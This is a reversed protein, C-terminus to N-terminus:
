HPSPLTNLPDTPTSSLPVSKLLASDIEIQLGKRQDEKRKRAEATAQRINFENILRPRAKEFTQTAAARSELLLIVYAAAGDIIVESCTQPKSLQLAAKAVPAPLRRQIEDPNLWGIDGGIYRTDQDDSFETALSGFGRRAPDAPLAQFRKLAEALRKHNETLRVVALHRADPVQLSPKLEEYLAKLQVDTPSLPELAVPEKEQLMAILLARQRRRFDPSEHLKLAQARQVLASETILEDLLAGRDISAANGGGRRVAAAQFEEVSITETGVVALGAPKPGEPPDCSALVLPTVLLPVIRRHRRTLAGLGLLLLLARSPEPVIITTMAFVYPAGAFSNWEAGNTNSVALWPDVTWGDAASIHSSAWYWDLLGMQQGAMSDHNVNTVGAVIWYSKGPEFVGVPATAHNFILEVATAGPTAAVTASAPDLEFQAIIEAKDPEAGIDALIFASLFPTPYGVDMLMTLSTPIQFEADDSLRIRNGLWQNYTFPDSALTVGATDMTIAAEMRPSAGLLFAAILSHFVARLM